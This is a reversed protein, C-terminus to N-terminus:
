LMNGKVHRQNQFYRGGVGHNVVTKCFREQAQNGISELGKRKRGSASDEQLHTPKM